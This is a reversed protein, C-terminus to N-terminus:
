LSTEPWLIVNLLEAPDRSEPNGELFVAQCCPRLSEYTTMRVYLERTANFDNGSTVASVSDLLEDYAMDTESRYAAEMRGWTDWPLMENQNLAALDFM